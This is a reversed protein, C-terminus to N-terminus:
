RFSGPVLIGANFQGIRRNRVRPVLLFGSIVVNFIRRKLYSELEGFEHQLFGILKNAVWVM